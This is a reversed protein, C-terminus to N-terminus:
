PRSARVLRRGEARPEGDREGRALQGGQRVCRACRPQHGGALAPDTGGQGCRGGRRAAGEARRDPRAVPRLQAVDARQDAARERIATGKLPDKAMEQEFRQQEFTREAQGKTLAADGTMGLDEAASRRVQADGVRAAGISDPGFTGTGAAAASPDNAAQRRAAAALVKEKVAQLAATKADQAPKVVMDVAPRAAMPITHLVAAAPITQGIANGIAETQEQGSATRPAYTLAQGGEAAAQEVRQAGEPTGYEGSLVAGTLGGIAGAVTGLTGGTLGTVTSLGAEGAGIIKQGLSPEPPPTPQVVREGNQGPIDDPGALQGKRWAAFSQDLPNSSVAPAGPAAAPQAPNAAMWKAFEDAMAATKIPQLGTMVRNIYAKTTAGWEKRDLGGVYEGVAQAPDGGNRKLGEQLLLGAGESANAASLKVDLGYKDLILKRTTPTFQYVTATGLDNTQSHNSREGNTRVSALLGPYIGLKQETATDLAAYTPDKYSEPFQPEAM